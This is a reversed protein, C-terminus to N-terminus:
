SESPVAPAPGGDIVHEPSMADAQPQESQTQSTDSAQEALQPPGVDIYNEKRAKSRKGNSTKKNAKSDKVM